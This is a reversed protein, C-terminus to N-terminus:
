KVEQGTITYIKEGRIIYIQGNHLIKTVGKAKYMEDNAIIEEIDEPSPMYVFYAVYDADGNVMITRPNDTNGDQWKEFYYNVNPVATLQLPYEEPYNGAGTVQGHAPFAAKATINYLPVSDYTFTIICEVATTSHRMNLWFNQKTVKQYQEPLIGTMTAEAQDEAGFNGVGGPYDNGATMKILKSGLTPEISFEINQTRLVYATDNGNHRFVPNYHIEAEGDGNVHKCSVQVYRHLAKFASSIGSPSNNTINDRHHGNATQNGEFVFNYKNSNTCSPCLDISNTNLFVVDTAPCAYFASAGLYKLNRPLVLCTYGTTSYFAKAYITDAMPLLTDIEVFEAKQFAYKPITKLNGLFSNVNINKVNFFAAEELHTITSPLYADELVSGSFYGSGISTIGEAINVRRLPVDHGLWPIRRQIYMNAQIENKRTLWYTISDMPAFEKLPGKGTITLTGDNTFVYQAAEDPIGCYGSALVELPAFHATIPIHTIETQSLNFSSYQSQLYEYLSNQRYHDHSNDKHIPNNTVLTIDTKFCDSTWGLFVCGPKPIAQLFEGACYPGSGIVTGLTTDNITIDYWAGYEKFSDVWYLWDSRVLKKGVLNPNANSNWGYDDTIQTYDKVEETGIYYKNGIKLDRIMCDRNVYIYATDYEYYTGTGSFTVTSDKDYASITYQKTKLAMLPYIDYNERMVIYNGSMNPVTGGEEHSKWQKVYYADDTKFFKVFLTDQEKCTYSIDTGRVVWHDFTSGHGVGIAMEGMASDCTMRMTVDGAKRFDAMFTTDRTVIEVRYANPHGDVWKDFVYGEAPTAVLAITTDKKYWGGGTVKGKGYRSKAVVEYLGSQRSMYATYTADGDVKITRLPDTNGDQWHEFYYGENPRVQIIASSGIAYAGQGFTNGSGSPNVKVTVYGQTPTVNGSEDRVLRVSFGNFRQVESGDVYCFGQGFQVSYANLTGSATSTWYYGMLNIYTAYSIGNSSYRYGAAPLFVAGADEMKDWEASSFVNQTFSSNGSILTCGTPMKFNDPLIVLGCVGVVKALGRKSQADTRSNLLYSWEASTLTRWGTGGNQINNYVGWDYNTGAIDGTPGYLSPTTSTMTPSKDDFGSTGWGFLDIYGAYSVSVYGNGSGIVTYQNDAFRFKKQTCHYQLNGQSFQVQKTSSVSFKGTLQATM